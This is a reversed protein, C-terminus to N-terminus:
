VCNPLENIVPLFSRSPTGLNGKAACVAVDAVRAGVDVGPIRQVTRGPARVEQVHGIGLQARALVHIVNIAGAAAKDGHHRAVPQLIRLKSLPNLGM